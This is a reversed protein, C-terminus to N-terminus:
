ANAKKRGSKRGVARGFDKLMRDFAKPMNSVAREIKPRLSKESLEVGLNESYKKADDILSRILIERIKNRDDTGLLASKPFYEDICEDESMRELRKIYDEIMKEKRSYFYKGSSPKARAVEYGLKAYYDYRDMRDWLELPLAAGKQLEPKGRSAEKIDISAFAFGCPAATGDSCKERFKEEAEKKSNARIAVDRFRATADASVKFLKM